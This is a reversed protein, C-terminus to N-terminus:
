IGAKGTAPELGTGEAEGLWKRNECTAKKNPSVAVEDCGVRVIFRGWFRFHRIIRPNRTPYAGFFTPYPAYLIDSLSRLGGM